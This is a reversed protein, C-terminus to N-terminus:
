YDCIGGIDVFSITVEWGRVSCLFSQCIVNSILTRSIDATDIYYIQINGSNVSM